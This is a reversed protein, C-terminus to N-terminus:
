SLLLVVAHVGRRAAADSASPVSPDLKITRTTHVRERGERRRLGFFVAFHM